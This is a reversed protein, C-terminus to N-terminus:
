PKNGVIREQSDWIEDETEAKKSDDVAKDRSKKKESNEIKRRVEAYDLFGDWLRLIKLILEIAFFIRGM